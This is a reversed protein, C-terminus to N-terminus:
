NNIRKVYLEQVIVYVAAAIAPSLVVGIIGLTSATILLSIIILLPHLDLFKAFIIPNLIRSQLTQVTIYVGITWLAMLPSKALAVFVAIIAATFPGVIPILEMIGALLGLLFVFDMGILFLGGATMLGTIIMILLEGLIYGGVKKSISVSIIEVKNKISTPFLSLFGKKLEKKDLLLFLIITAMTLAALIGTFFNLTLSISQNVINQGISSTNSLIQNFDPMLSSYKANIQWETIFKEIEKWYVPMQTLFEHAQQILIISAPILVTALIVFGLFYVIAVAFSRPMRKNLWDVLPYLASAIIFSAFLLLIMEKSQYIIWTLIIFAIGAIISKPVIVIKKPINM